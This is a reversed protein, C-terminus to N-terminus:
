CALSVVPTQRKAFHTLAPGARPPTLVRPLAVDVGWAPLLDDNALVPVCPRPGHVPGM